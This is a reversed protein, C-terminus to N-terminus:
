QLTPIGLFGCPGHGFPWFQLESTMALDRRPDGPLTAIQDLARTFQEAAEVLASGELSRQGAKDWWEIGAEDDAVM